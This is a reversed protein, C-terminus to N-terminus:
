FLFDRERKQCEISPLGMFFVGARKRLRDLCIRPWSLVLCSDWFLFKVPFFAKCSRTGLSGSRSLRIPPYMFLDTHSSSSQTRHLSVCTACALIRQSTTCSAHSSSKNRKWNILNKLLYTRAKLTNRCTGHLRHTKASTHHGTRKHQHIKPPILYLLVHRCLLVQLVYAVSHISAIFILDEPFLGNYNRCLTTSTFHFTYPIEVPIVLFQLLTEGNCKHPLKSAFIIYYSLKLLNRSEWTSSIFRLIIVYFIHLAPRLRSSMTLFPFICSSINPEMVWHACPRTYLFFTADRRTAESGHSPVNCLKM